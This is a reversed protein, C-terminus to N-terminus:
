NTLHYYLRLGLVHESKVCCHHGKQCDKVLFPNKDNSPFTNITIHGQLINKMFFINKPGFFCTKQSFFHNKIM